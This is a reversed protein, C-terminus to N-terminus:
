TPVVKFVIDMISSEGLVDNIAKIMKPKAGEMEQIVAPHSVSVKLKNRKMKCDVIFERFSKNKFKTEIVKWFANVVADPDDARKLAYRERMEKLVEKLTIM